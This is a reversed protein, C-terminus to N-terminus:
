LAQAAISLLPLYQQADSPVALDITQGYASVSVYGPDSYTTLTAPVGAAEGSITTEQTLGDPLTSAQWDDIDLNSIISQVQTTSIGTASSIDGAHSMLADSVAGKVGSADIAKNVAATKAQEVISTSTSAQPSRTPTLALICVIVIAIAAVAVICIGIVRKAMREGKAKPKTSHAIRARSSFAPAAPSEFTTCKSIFMRRNSPQGASVTACSDCKGRMTTFGGRNRRFNLVFRVGKRCKAISTEDNERTLAKTPM